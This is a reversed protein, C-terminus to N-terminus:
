QIKRCNKGFTVYELGYCASCIKRMIRYSRRMGHAMDALELRVQGPGAKKLQRAIGPVKALAAIDDDMAGSHYANLVQAKTINLEFRNFSAWM